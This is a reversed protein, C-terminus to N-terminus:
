IFGMALFMACFPLSLILGVILQQRVARQHADAVPYSVTRSTLWVVGDPAGFFGMDAESAPHHTLPSFLFLGANIVLAILVAVRPWKEDPYDSWGIMAMVGVCAIGIAAHITTDVPIGLTSDLAFAIAVFAIIGLGGLCYRVFKVDM